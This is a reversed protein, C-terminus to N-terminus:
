GLSSPIPTSVWSRKQPAWCGRPQLARLTYESGTRLVWLAAGPRQKDWKVRWFTSRQQCVCSRHGKSSVKHSGAWRRRTDSLSSAAGPLSRDPESHAPKQECGRTDKWTVPCTAARTRSRLAMCLMRTDQEAISNDAPPTTVTDNSTVTHDGGSTNILKRNIIWASSNTNNM